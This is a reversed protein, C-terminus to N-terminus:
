NSVPPQPDDCRIPNAGDAGHFVVEGDPSAITIRYGPVLAQTYIGGPEPCGLAGDPWTVPEASTVTLDEANFGDAVLAAVAQSSADLFQAHVVSGSAVDGTDNTCSTLITAGAFMAIVTNRLLRKM